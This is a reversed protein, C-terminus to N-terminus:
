FRNRYKEKQSNKIAVNNSMLDTQLEDKVGSQMFSCKDPNLVIFNKYFCNSLIAFDHDLSTM